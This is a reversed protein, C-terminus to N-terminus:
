APHDVLSVTIGSPAYIDMWAQFSPLIQVLHHHAFITEAHGIIDVCTGLALAAGMEVHKGGRTFEDDSFWLVVDARAVDELDRVAMARSVSPSPIIKTGFEEVSHPENLCTSVVRHGFKELEVAYRRFEEKRAYSGAIYIDECVNQPM